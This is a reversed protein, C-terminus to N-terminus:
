PLSISLFDSKIETQGSTGYKPFFPPFSAKRDPFTQISWLLTCTDNSQFLLTYIPIMPIFHTYAIFSLECRFSLSTITILMWPTANLNYPLIFM